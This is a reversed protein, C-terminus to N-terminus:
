GHLSRPRAPPPLARSAHRTRRLPRQGAGSQLLSGRPTEPCFLPSPSHRWFPRAPPTPCRATTSPLFAHPRPDAWATQPSLRTTVTPPRAAPPLTSLAAPLPREAGTQRRCIGGPIDPSLSHPSPLSALDQRRLVTPPLMRHRFACDALRVLDACTPAPPPRTSSSSAPVAPLPLASSAAPFPTSRGTQSRCVGNPLNPSLSHPPCPRVGPRPDARRRLPSLMSRLLLHVTAAGRAAPAQRPRRLPASANTQRRRVRGPTDPSHSHLASARPSVSILPDTAERRAAPPLRARPPHACNAAPSLKPTVSPTRAAPPPCPPHPPRLSRSGGAKRRCARRRLHLSMPAPGPRCEPRPRPPVPAPRPVPCRLDLGATTQAPRCRPRAAAPVRSEGAAISPAPRPRATDPPVACTALSTFRAHPSRPRAPPPLARSAHPAPPTSGWTRGSASQARPTQPCPISRHSPTQARACRARPTRRRTSAQADPRNPRDACATAPSPKPLSSPPRM